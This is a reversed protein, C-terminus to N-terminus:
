EDADQSTPARYRATVPLSAPDPEKNRTAPCETTFEQPLARLPAAARIFECVRTISGDARRRVRSPCRRLDPSRLRSRRRSRTVARRPATPAPLTRRPLAQWSRREPSPFAAAAGQPLLPRESRDRPGCADCACTPAGAAGCRRPLRCGAHRPRQRARRSAGSRGDARAGRGGPGRGRRGGHAPRCGADADLRRDRRGESLRAVGDRVDVALSGLLRLARRRVGAAAMADTVLAIRGPAAAFAIRIVEPHVHVGDAIIELTVRPDSAAAGVPGPERHDLGPMANFAHTLITAGADFAAASTAADATTHGVAATSGSDRLLRIADIAGPLEPALTVQRVTGRGAELLREVAGAVPLRLLTEDHAGKRAPTSSRDRWTRVSSTPMRRDDSRRDDRRTARSRRPARDRALRGRPHHRARPARCTRARIAEPGDDYSVGGGGHGHIDISAPRSSRGPAPSRWPTSSRTPPRAAGDTARVRPWSASTTSACGRTRSSAGTM